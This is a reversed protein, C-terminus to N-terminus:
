TEHSLWNEKSHLTYKSICEVFWNTENLRLLINYRKELIEQMIKKEINDVVPICLTSFPLEFVCKFSYNSSVCESFTNFKIWIM